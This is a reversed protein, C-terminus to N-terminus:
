LDGRPLGHRKGEEVLFVEARPSLRTSSPQGASPSEQQETRKELFPLGPLPFISSSYWDLRSIEVHLLCRSLHTRSAQPVGSKSHVLHRAARSHGSNVNNNGRGGFAGCM